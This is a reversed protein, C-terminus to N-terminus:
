ESSLILEAAKMQAPDDRDAELLPPHPPLIDKVVHDSRIGSKYLPVNDSSLIYGTTIRLEIGSTTKVPKTRFSEKGNLNEGIITVKKSSKLALAIADAFPSQYSGVLLFIAKKFVIEPDADFNIDAENKTKLSGMRGSGLFLDAIKFSESFDGPQLKRVDLVIADRSELSGSLSALQDATGPLSSRLVIYEASKGGKLNWKSNLINQFTVRSRVLKYSRDKYTLKVSSDMPGKIRGVLEELDMNSVNVDDVAIIYKGMEMSERNSASGELTDIAMFKGPGEQRIVLGIGAEREPNRSWSLSEPPIFINNGQPLAALFLKLAEYTKLRKEADEYKNLFKVLGVRGTESPNAEMKKLTGSYMESFLGEKNDNLFVYNNAIARETENFLIAPDIEKNKKGCSLSLAIIFILQVPIIRIDTFAFKM